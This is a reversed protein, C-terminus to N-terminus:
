CARRTQCNRACRGRHRHRGRGPHRPFQYAGPHPYITGDPLKIHITVHPNKDASEAIRRKYEIIDAESAQFIVYIPDQSVITALTGSSPSSWIAWRSIPLGSGDTSRRTSRPIASISKRRSSCRRRRCCMPRRLRSTPQVSISRPKRSTRTACLSRAASCNCSPTSRRRRQRPSIPTEAPRGRGQLNGARHPVAPRRDQGAARRHFQAGRHLRPRARRHRGQRNGDHPRHFRGNGDGPPEGGSKGLGCATARLKATAAGCRVIFILAGIAAKKAVSSSRDLM